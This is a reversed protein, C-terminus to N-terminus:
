KAAHGSNSPLIVLLKDECATCVQLYFDDFFNASVDKM